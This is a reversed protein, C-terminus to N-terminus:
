KDVAFRVGSINYKPLVHKYDLECTLTIRRIPKILKRCHYILPWDVCCRKLVCYFMISVVTDVNTKRKLVNHLSVKSIGSDFLYVVPHM